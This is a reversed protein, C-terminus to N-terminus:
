QSHSADGVCITVVEGWDADKERVGAGVYFQDLAQVGCEGSAADIGSRDCAFQGLRPSTFRMSCSMVSASVTMTTRLRAAAAEGTQLFSIANASRSWLRM